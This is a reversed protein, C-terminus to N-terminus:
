NPKVVKYVATLNQFPINYKNCIKHIADKESTLWSVNIYIYRIGCDKIKENIIENSVIISKFNGSIDIYDIHSEIHTLYESEM